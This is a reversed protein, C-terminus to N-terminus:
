EYRLAELERYMPDSLPVESGNRYIASIEVLREPKPAPLERLLLANWISFIAANAGIGLALIFVSVATFGPSRILAHLAYPLDRPLSGM